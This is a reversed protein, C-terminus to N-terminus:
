VPHDRQRARYLGAAAARRSLGLKHLIRSVHAEVTRISIGLASAAERDTLGDSVLGLIELERETLLELPDRPPSAPRLEVSRALETIASAALDRPIVVEGSRAARVSRLLAEPTLDKTLYGAAGLRLAEILDRHANSVTLMVVRTRPMEARLQALLELGSTGPLDIDLLVLDPPEARASALAEAATGAEGTVEIDPGSIADRVARRVLPHDDVLLVRTVPERESM